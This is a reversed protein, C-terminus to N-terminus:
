PTIQIPVATGCNPCVVEQPRAPPNITQLLMTREVAKARDAAGALPPHEWGAYYGREPQGRGPRGKDREGRQ